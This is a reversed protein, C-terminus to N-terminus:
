GVVLGILALPGAVLIFGAVWHKVLLQYLLIEITTGLGYAWPKGGHLYWSWIHLTCLPSESPTCSIAPVSETDYAASDGENRGETGSRRKWVLTQRVTRWTNSQRETRWPSFSSGPWFFLRGGSCCESAVRPM